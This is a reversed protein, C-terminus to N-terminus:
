VMGWDVNHNWSFWVLVNLVGKGDDFYASVNLANNPVLVALSAEKRWHPGHPTSVSTQSSPKAPQSGSKISIQSWLDRGSFGNVIVSLWSVCMIGIRWQAARDVYLVNWILILLNGKLLIFTWAQLEQKWYFVHYLGSLSLERKHLM